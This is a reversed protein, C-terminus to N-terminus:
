PPCTFPRRAAAREDRLLLLMPVAMLVIELTFLWREAGPQDLMGWAHRGSIDMFRMALYVAIM